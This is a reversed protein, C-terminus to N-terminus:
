KKDQNWLEDLLQRGEQEDRKWKFYEPNDRKFEKEFDDLKKGRAIKDRIGVVTSLASEGVAMYYSIFTWWHLYELARVETHAVNNIASVILKEDQVWDIVKHHTKYGIDSDNVNIFESMKSVAEDLKDLTDFTTIVSDVSDLCEYFIILAAFVREERTLEVDDMAAIVDLIVRYDAQKRITYETDDILVATPLEYM